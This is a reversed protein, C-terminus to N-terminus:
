ITPQIVSTAPHAMVSVAFIQVIIKAHWGMFVLTAYRVVAM